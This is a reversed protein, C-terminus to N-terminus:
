KITLAMTTSNTVATVGNNSQATITVTYNGSPTPLSSGPGHHYYDYLPSCATTGLSTILGVIAVLALRSLWRRRRAGWALGGLGLMGPFLIALALPDSHRSSPKSNSASPVNAAQTQILMSSPVGASQGPLIEISEPTFTCTSLSPLGSCSVTIFVPAGSLTLSAVFTQSPVVTVTATGTQGATLTMASSSSPTVNTVSVAVTTNCQSSIPASAPLSTSTQFNTDGAYVALLTHTGNSLYLVVTAQGSSNLTASALQVPTGGAEDEINVTGTPVGGSGSVTVSLTTLAVTQGSTPCTQTSSQSALATSTTTLGFARGAPLLCFAALVFAFGVVTNLRLARCFFGRM